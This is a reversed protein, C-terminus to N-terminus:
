VNKQKEELDKIKEELFKIKETSLNLKEEYLEIIKESLQNIVIHTDHETHNQVASACDHNNNNQVLGDSSFLEEPKVNLETCIKTLYDSWSSSEGTEIRSYASQSIHLRDAMAEQSFGKNERLVRIKAGVTKNM